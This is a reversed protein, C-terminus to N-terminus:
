GGGMPTLFSITAADQLKDDDVIIKRGMLVMINELHPYLETHLDYLHKKLDRLTSEDPMEISLEGFGTEQRLHQFLNVDIFISCNDLAGAGFYIL